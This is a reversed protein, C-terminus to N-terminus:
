CVPVALLVRVDGGVNGDLYGLGPVTLSFTCPVKQADTLIADVDYYSSSGMASSIRQQHAAPASSIPRGHASDRGDCTRGRAARWTGGIVQGDSEAEGADRTRRGEDRTERRDDRTGRGEDRTGGSEVEGARRGRQGGGNAGDEDQADAARGERGAHADAQLRARAEGTRRAVFM